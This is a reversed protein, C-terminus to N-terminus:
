DYADDLIEYKKVWLFGWKGFELFYALIFILLELFPPFLFKLKDIM